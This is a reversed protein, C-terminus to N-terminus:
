IRICIYLPLFLTILGGLALFPGFPIKTHAAAKHMLLLACAYLTATLSGILLTYWVGQIGVCSGIGALLEPDGDGMGTVGTRKKYLYAITALSGYGLLAGLASEATSIPLTGFYSAIIGLPILSLSCIRPILMFEADTRITIILATTYLFSVSFYRTPLAYLLATCVSATLLEILPYLISIPRHCQRCRGKLVFWSLVPILDYWLIPTHCHPCQSRSWLGKHTILRYAFVNLFSGWCLFVIFPIIM